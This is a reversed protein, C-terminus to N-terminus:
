EDGASSRAADSWWDGYKVLYDFWHEEDASASTDVCMVVDPIDSRERAAAFAAQALVVPNSMVFDHSELVLM